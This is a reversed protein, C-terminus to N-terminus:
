YSNNALFNDLRSDCYFYPNLQCILSTLQKRNLFIFFLYKRVFLVFRKKFILLQSPNSMIGDVGFCIFLTCKSHM